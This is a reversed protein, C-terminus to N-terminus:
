NGTPPVDPTTLSITDPELIGNFEIMCHCCTRSKKQFPRTVVQHRHSNSSELKSGRELFKVWGELKATAATKPFSVIRILRSSTFLFTARELIRRSREFRADVSAPVTYRPDPVTQGGVRQYEPYM